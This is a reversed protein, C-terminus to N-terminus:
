TRFRTGPIPRPEAVGSQRAGGATRDLVVTASRARFCSIPRGRPQAWDAFHSHIQPEPLEDTVTGQLWLAGASGAASDGTHQLRIM